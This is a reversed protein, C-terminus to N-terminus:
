WVCCLTVEWTPPKPSTLIVVEEVLSTNGSDKARACRYHLTGYLHHLNEKVLFLQYKSGIAWCPHVNYFGSKTEVQATKKKYTVILLLNKRLFGKKSLVIYTKQM